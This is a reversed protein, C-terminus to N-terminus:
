KACDGVRRANLMATMPTEVKGPATLKLDAMGDYSTSGVVLETRGRSAVDDKKCSLDYAVRNGNTEINSISCDATPKPLTRTPHDIDQQSLCERATEAPAAQKAITTTVRLEWLGPQMPLAAFAAAPGVALASFVAMARIRAVSNPSAQRVFRM